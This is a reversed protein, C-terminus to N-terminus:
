PKAEVTPEWSFENTEFFTEPLAFYGLNQIARRIHKQGNRLVFVSHGPFLMDINLHELKLIDRRYDDLNCGELNLLGIKGAYFVYDGTFLARKGEDELLMCTSDFTHGQTHIMALGLNGLKVLEGDRFTKDPPCAQPVYGNPYRNHKLNNVVGPEKATDNMADLALEPVWVEAGTRERLERAGGWHGYHSHTIFIHSLSDPQFGAAAINALIDDVGLGVGTDILGLASGGDILYCNCDMPHSLGFQESGVLYVSKSLRV